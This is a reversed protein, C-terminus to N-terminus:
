ENFISLGHFACRSKIILITYQSSLLWKSHFFDSKIAFLYRTFFLVSLHKTEEQYETLYLVTCSKIEYSKFPFFLEKQSTNKLIPSLFM